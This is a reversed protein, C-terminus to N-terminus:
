REQQRNGPAALKRMARAEELMGRPVGWHALSSERLWEAVDDDKPNKDAYWSAALARLLVEGAPEVVVSLGSEVMVDIARALDYAAHRQETSKWARNLVADQCRNVGGGTWEEWVAAAHCRDIRLPVARGMSRMGPAMLTRGGATQTTGPSPASAATGVFGPASPPQMVAATGGFGPAATGGFGTGGFGAATGGFGPQMVGVAAAPEPSLGQPSTGLMRHAMQVMEALPGGVGFGPQDCVGGTADAQQVTPAPAFVAADAQQVKAAPAAPEDQMARLALLFRCKTALPLGADASAFLADVDSKDLVTLEDVARFGAGVLLDVVEPVGAKDTWRALPTETFPVSAPLKPQEDNGEGTESAVVAAGILAAFRVDGYDQDEGDGLYVWEGIHLAGKPDRCNSKKLCFHVATKGGSLYPPLASGDVSTLRAKAALGKKADVKSTPQIDSIVVPVARGDGGPIEAAVTKIHKTHILGTQYVANMDGAFVVPM